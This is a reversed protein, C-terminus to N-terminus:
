KPLVVMALLKEFQAWKAPTTAALLLAVRAKVVKEPVDDGTRALCAAAAERDSQVPMPADETSGVPRGKKAAPPAKRGGAAGAKRIGAKELYTRAVPGLNSVTMGDQPTMGHAFALFAVKCLSARAKATLAARAKLEDASEGPRAGRSVYHAVLTSIVSPHVEKQYQEDTMGQCTEALKAMRDVAQRAVTSTAIEVEAIDHGLRAYNVEQSVVHAVHKDAARAKRASTKSILATM